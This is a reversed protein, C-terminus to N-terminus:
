AVRGASTTTLTVTFTAGKGPGSSSATLPGGLADALAKSITLDIGSGGHARDRAADGRYFQEFVRWSRLGRWLSRLQPTGNRRPRGVRGLGITLAPDAEAPVSGLPMRCM